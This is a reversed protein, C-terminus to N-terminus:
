GTGQWFTGPAMESAAGVLKEGGIRALVGYLRAADEADEAVPRSPIGQRYRDRLKELEAGQARVIPALTRWEEDSNALVAKAAASAKMFGALAPQNDKAWRERFVYGLASVPGSAGLARAADDAGILRRFGNAELRACFHWFNLVADFEGEITKQQLLPPAGFAVQTQRTLDLGDDREAMARILLWSKDLPGGAVALKKGALDGLARMPSAQRVMIAGVATSYPLLTVDEGDARLRSVWLWDSVIMDLDGALFAVNSADESAFPVIDLGVGNAADFGHRRITEIEWSVTGFKLIGIRVKAAARGFTPMVAAGAAALALGFLARRSVDMGSGKPKLHGAAPEPLRM